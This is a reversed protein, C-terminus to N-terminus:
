AADGLVKTVRALVDKVTFPRGDFKAIHGMTSLETEALLLKGLQGSFNGEVTLLRERDALAKRVADRNLPYLYRFVAVGLDYSKERLIRVAELVPGASSGWCVLMTGAEPFHVEPGPLMDAIGALKRMRKAVQRERNEADDSIQGLEDHEHSDQAVLWQSMVPFARPSIGSETCAYRALTKVAGPEGAVAGRDVTVQEPDYDPVTQQADAFAHDTMIFVPVQWREALNFAEVTLYYADQPNTPALVVRPFEGQATHVVFLLDAQETRTAMGTAPGSRQGNVIVLPTETIGAMGIAESMLAIGGGSSGTAARVGAYSAGIAINAAAIEDEAMEVVIGLDPGNEALFNLISTSPSMPYGAYVGIGASIMGLAVAEHGSVLLKGKGKGAHLSPPNIGREKQLSYIWAVAKRNTELLQDSKGRKGLMRQVAESFIDEDLGLNAALMALLKVGHFRKERAEEPGTEEPLTRLRLDDAGKCDDAICFALGNDTLAELHVQLSEGNLALLFDTRGVSAGISHEAFRIRSFNHGGRIRSQYDHTIFVSFGSRMLAKGLTGAAWQVGQGAAGGIVVSIDTM